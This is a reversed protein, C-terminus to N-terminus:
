GQADNKAGLLRRAWQVARVPDIGVATEDSLVLGAYGRQILDLVHCAESRTPEAHHTLHELVQGAMVLPVALTEPKLGAVWRAMKGLGLQVGLDGRCVWLVDVARAVDDLREIAERREIKGILRTGTPVRRRLWDAEAGTALFSLAFDVPGARLAAQVREADAPTLDDLLVPHDTLNVGKRPRVDGPTEVLAEAGEPSADLVRLVVRGDDLQLQHGPRLARFLEAHPVHLALSDDASLSLRIREGTQLTRLAVHEGLRMKGGQLDVVVPADPCTARVLAIADHLQTPSLHSANLRFGTAGALALQPALHLSAPGLTAVLQPGQPASASFPLFGM